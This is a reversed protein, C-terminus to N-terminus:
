SLTKAPTCLRPNANRLCHKLAAHFIQPPTTPHSHSTRCVATEAVALSSAVSASPRELNPNRM